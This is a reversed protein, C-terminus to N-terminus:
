ARIRVMGYGEVHRRKGSMGGSQECTRDSYEPSM